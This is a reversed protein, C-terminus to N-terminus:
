SRRITRAVTKVPNNGGSRPGGRDAESGPMRGHIGPNGRELYIM